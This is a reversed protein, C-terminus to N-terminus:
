QCAQAMLAVLGALAFVVSAGALLPRWRRALLWQGFTPRRWVVEIEVKPAAADEAEEVPIDIRPLAPQRLTLREGSELDATEPQAQRRKRIAELVEPPAQRVVTEASYADGSAPPPVTDMQQLAKEEDGYIAPVIARLRREVM